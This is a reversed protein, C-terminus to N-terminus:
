WSLSDSSTHFFSLCCCPWLASCYFAHPRTVAWWKKHILHVIFWQDQPQWGNKQCLIFWVTTCSIQLHFCKYVVVISLRMSNGYPYSVSTYLGIHTPMVLRLLHEMVICLPSGQLLLYAMINSFVMIGRPVCFDRRSVGLVFNQLGVFVHWPFPHSHSIMRMSAYYWCFNSVRYSNPSLLCYCIYALFSPSIRVPIEIVFETSLWTRCPNSCVLLIVIQICRFWLSAIHTALHKYDSDGIFNYERPRCFDFCSWVRPSPVAAGCVSTFKVSSVRGM